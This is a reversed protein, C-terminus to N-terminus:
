CCSCHSHSGVATGPSADAECECSCGDSGDPMWTGGAGTCGSESCLDATCLTSHQGDSNYCCPGDAPPPSPPPPPPAPVAGTMLRDTIEAPVDVMYSVGAPHTFIYDCEAATCTATAAAGTVPAVYECTAGAATGADSVACAGEVSEDEDAACTAPNDAVAQTLVCNTTDEETETGDSATSTCGETVADVTTGADYTCHATECESQTPAAVPAVYATYDCGDADCGAEAATQVTTGASFGSAAACTAAGDASDQECKETVEAVEAPCTVPTCSGGKGDTGPVLTCKDTDGVTRTGESTYTRGVVSDCSETTATTSTAATGGKVLELYPAHCEGQEQCGAFTPVYTCTAGATTGADTAACSGGTGGTGATLDCNTTDTAATLTSTCSEETGADSDAAVYACSIGAAAGSTAVCARSTTGYRSTVCDFECNTTDSTTEITSTCSETTAVQGPLSWDRKSSSLSQCGGEYYDLNSSITADCTGVAVCCVPDAAGVTM